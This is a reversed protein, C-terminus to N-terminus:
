LIPWLTGKMFNKSVPVELSYMMFEKIIEEGWKVSGHAQDLLGFQRNLWCEEEETYPMVIGTAAKPCALRIETEPEVEPFKWVFNYSSFVSM